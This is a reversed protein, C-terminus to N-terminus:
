KMFQASNMKFGMISWKDDRRVLVFSLDAEGMEFKGSSNFTIQTATGKGSETNANFNQMIFPQLQVLKGLKDKGLAVIQAMQEKSTAAKFEPSARSELEKVDWNAAIAEMSQQAYATGTKNIEMVSNFANRGIFFVGGCCLLGLAALVGLVIWLAKM